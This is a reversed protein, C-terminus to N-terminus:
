NKWSACIATSTIKTNHLVVYEIFKVGEMEVALICKTCHNLVYKHVAGGATAGGLEVTAGSAHANGLTTICMRGCTTITTTMDNIVGKEANSSKRFVCVAPEAM